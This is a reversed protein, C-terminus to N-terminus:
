PMDRADAAELDGAANGSRSCIRLFDQQSLPQQAGRSSSSRSGVSPISCRMGRWIKAITRFAVLPPVPTRMQEDSHSPKALMHSRTTTRLRPWKEASSAPVWSLSSAM